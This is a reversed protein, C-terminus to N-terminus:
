LLPELLPQSHPISGKQIALERAQMRVFHVFKIFFRFCHLFRLYPCSASLPPPHYLLRPFIKENFKECKKKVWWFSLSPTKEAAAAKFWCNTPIENQILHQGFNGIKDINKKQENKKLQM